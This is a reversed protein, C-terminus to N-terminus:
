TNQARGDKPNKARNEEIEQIIYSAGAAGYDGVHYVYQGIMKAISAQDLIKGQQIDAVTQGIRDVEDLRFSQGIQSRIELLAPRSEYKEWDPNLVKMPTDIYICPKLTAFSFEMSIGSWDTIMVDSRYQSENTSFDTEFAIDGVAKYRNKLEAIRAPNRKVYQPHPRVIIRWGHGALSALLADLCSDMINGEHHSPAILVQFRENKKHALSQYHGILDDLLPYGFAVLRKPPLGCLKETERIERVHHPGVCFITDYCDFAGTRYIMHTSVMAHFVYIYDIDKRVLSRKYYYKELEPMTMVMVDTDLKMFWYILENGDIYYAKFKESQMSFVEDHLDSTVYHIVIDSSSLIHEILGKYYRYFGGRVSYFVLEKKEASEAFFRKYDAKSLRAEEKIEKKSKKHKAADALMRKSQELAAYDIHRRPDIVANMLYMVAISLLNGATWYLVAAAPVAFSLYAALLIMLLSTGWHGFGEQERQLVNSRNQLVCLLWTSAVALIPYLFIAGHLGPTQLLDCGLFTRDLGRLAALLADVPAGAASAAATLEGRELLRIAEVQWALGLKDTGLFASLGLRLAQVSASDIKLLYRLPNYVVSIVGIILPIQILTPILGVLPRYGVRKYLALQEEGAKASDNIYQAKIQNVEPQIKVMKIANKQQWVSLPLFIIKVAVTFLLIAAGYSGVFAYCVGMLWGLLDIVPQFM